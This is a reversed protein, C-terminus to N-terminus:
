EYSIRLVNPCKSLQAPRPTHRKTCVYFGIPAKWRRSAYLMYISIMVRGGRSAGLRCDGFDGIKM